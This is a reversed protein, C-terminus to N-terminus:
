INRISRKTLYVNRGTLSKVSEELRLFTMDMQHIPLALMKDFLDGSM